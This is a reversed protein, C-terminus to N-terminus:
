IRLFHDVAFTGGGIASLALSAIMLSIDLEYGGIYKKKMKSIQLLTTSFMYVAFLLAIVQTFIGLLLAIGGFFEVIGGFLIFGAPLGMSKMWEGGQKRQASGLKPYGHIMFLSGLALRLLLAAVSLHTGFLDQIM